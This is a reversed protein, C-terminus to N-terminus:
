EDFKLDDAFEEKINNFETNTLMERYKMEKRKKELWSYVRSHPSGSLLSLIARKAVSVHEIEGIISVTKGYVSIDTETLNEITRRAKGQEGIVRGKLRM